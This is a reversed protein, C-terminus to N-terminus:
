NTVSVNCTDSLTEGGNAYTVVLECDGATAGASILGSASVTTGSPAGTLEYSFGSTVNRVLEGNVVLAPRVQYTTSVALTIVGGLQAVVGEIGSTTDCPTYIYYAFPTGGSACDDCEGDITTPDYALAQGTISTTDPTTQDGTVGGADGGLKLRPVIITLSGVHTGQNAGTSGASDYVEMVATFRYVSPDFLSNVTAVQANARTVHYWVKYSVGATATFGSVAGAADIPYAVGGVSVPSAAGVQQVFCVVDSAGMAAVPAGDTVDITLEEGSATVTQCVMVPAGYSLSAGLQGAKAFLSFDAAVFNVQLSADSPIMAQIPNGSGGRIEGMTVSTTVNATQFKDSCYVINNTSTDQLYATATGKLFLTGGTFRIAM